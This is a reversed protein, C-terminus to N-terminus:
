YEDDSEGSMDFFDIIQYAQELSAALSLAFYEAKEEDFTIILPVQAKAVYGVM